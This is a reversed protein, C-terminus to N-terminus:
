QFRWAGGLPSVWCYSWQCKRLTAAPAVDHHPTLPKRAAAPRALEGVHRSARWTVRLSNYLAPCSVSLMRPAYLPIQQYNLAIPARPMKFQQPTRLM